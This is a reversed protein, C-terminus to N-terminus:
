MTDPATVGVLCLGNALVQRTAALLALRGDRRAEDLDALIPFNNYYGHFEHALDRLYHIVQHPERALAASVVVEPYRSLTIALDREAEETLRAVQALSAAESYTGGKETLKRFVSHIRAHAYQVYYVPNEASRSTALEMDFDLHQDSRRMVYYFRTADVGV